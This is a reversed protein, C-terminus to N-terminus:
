AEANAARCDQLTILQIGAQLAGFCQNVGGQARATLHACLDAGAICNLESGDLHALCLMLSEVLKRKAPTPPCPVMRALSTSTLTPNAAPYWAFCASTCPM